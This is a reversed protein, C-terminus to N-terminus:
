DESIGKGSERIMADAMVFAQKAIVQKRTIGSCDKGFWQDLQWEPAQGTCVNPNALAALAFRNRLSLEM